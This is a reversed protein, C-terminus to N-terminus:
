PAPRCTLRTAAFHFILRHTCSRLDFHQQYEPYCRQQQQNL